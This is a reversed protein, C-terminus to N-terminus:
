IDYKNTETLKKLQNMVVVVMELTGLLQVALGLQTDLLYHVQVLSWCTQNNIYKYQVM